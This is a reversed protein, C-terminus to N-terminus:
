LAQSQHQQPNVASAKSGKRQIVRDILGFAVAQQPSMYNDRDIARELEDKPKGTHSQYLSIIQDRIRLM